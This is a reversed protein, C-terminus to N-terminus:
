NPVLILKDLKFSNSKVSLTVAVSSTSATFIRGYLNMYFEIWKM